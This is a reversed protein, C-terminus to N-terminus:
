FDRKPLDKFMYYYIKSNPKLIIIITILILLMDVKFSINNQYWKELEGKYPAIKEKYFKHPNQSSSILKEEDRFVISGIGTVGPRTNYIIKKVSNSYKDYDVRMQPRAGVISMDGLVVNLLQPFENIKTMRLFKGVPLVRPDNRITLSKTGIKSSNKVMTVFKFIKFENNLFGIRKQVYIIQNEGTFLLIISILVLLPSLIFISIVAIIIDILRKLNRKYM